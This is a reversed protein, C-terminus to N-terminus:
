CLDYIIVREVTLSELAALFWPSNIPTNVMTVTTLKATAVLCKLIYVSLM